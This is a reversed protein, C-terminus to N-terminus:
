GALTNDSTRTTYIITPSTWPEYPQIWRYPHPYHPWPCPVPLVYPVPAAQAIKIDGCHTCFIRDESLKQYKHECSKKNM